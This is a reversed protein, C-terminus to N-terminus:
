PKCGRHHHDVEEPGSNDTFGQELLYPNVTDCSSTFYAHLSISALACKKNQVLTIGFTSLRLAAHASRSRSSRWKSFRSSAVSASPTLSSSSCSVARAACPPRLRRPAPLPSANGRQRVRGDLPARVVVQAGDGEDRGLEPGTLAPGFQLPGGSEELDDLPSVGERAGGPGM